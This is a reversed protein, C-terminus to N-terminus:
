AGGKEEVVKAFHGVVALLEGAGGQVVHAGARTPAVDTNADMEVDDKGDVRESVVLALKGVADSAVTRPLFSWETASATTFVVVARSGCALLLASADSNPNPSSAWVLGYKARSTTSTTAASGVVVRM